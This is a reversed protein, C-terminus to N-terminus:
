LYLFCKVYDEQVIIFRGNTTFVGGWYSFSNLKNKVKSKKIEIHSYQNIRVLLYSYKNM